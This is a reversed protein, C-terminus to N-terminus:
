YCNGSPKINQITQLDQTPLTVTVADKQMPMQSQNNGSSPLNSPIRMELDNKTQPKNASVPLLQNQSNMHNTMTQNQPLNTRPIQGNVLLDPTSQKKSESVTKIQYILRFNDVVGTSGRNM